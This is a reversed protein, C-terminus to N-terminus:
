FSEEMKWFMPGTASKWRSNCRQGVRLVAVGRHDIERVAEFARIARGIETHYLLFYLGLIVVMALAFTGLRSYPLVVGFITLNLSSYSTQVTRYDATRAELALNALMLHLGFTLLDSM